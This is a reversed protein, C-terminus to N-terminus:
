KVCKWRWRHKLAVFDLKTHRLTFQLNERVSFLNADDQSLLVPDPIYPPLIEACLLKPAEDPVPNEM